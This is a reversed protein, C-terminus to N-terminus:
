SFKATVSRAQSLTVTCTTVAGTCAGTWGVFTSGRWPTATLTVSTGGVFSAECERGCNIGGPSSTVTGKGRGQKTVTLSYTVLSFTATVNRAQSMTVNCTSNTGSCAGSWRVFKSGSSPSATLVVKTQAPFWASCTNGCDIGAPQSSVTGGGKGEKTVKLQRPEEVHCDRGSQSSARNASKAATAGRQTQDTLTKNAVV